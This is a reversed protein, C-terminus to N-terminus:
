HRRHAILPFLESSFRPFLLSYPVVTPPTHTRQSRAAGASDRLLIKSPLPYGYRNDDITTKINDPRLSETRRRCKRYFVCFRSTNVRTTMCVYSFGRARRAAFRSGDDGPRRCLTASRSGHFASLTRPGAAARVAAGRPRAGGRRRWRAPPIGRADRLSERKIEHCTSDRHM